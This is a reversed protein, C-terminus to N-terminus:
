ERDALFVALQHLREKEISLLRCNHGVGPRIFLKVYVGRSAAADRFNKATIGNTGSYQDLAGIDILMRPVRMRPPDPYSNPSYYLVGKWLEPKTQLLDNASSAGVSIGLLYVNNTDIGVKKLLTDYVCVADNAWESQDSNRRDVIMFYYGCNAITQAYRDWNYAKELKGMVGIVLPTKLTTDVHSPELLYYTLAKGSTNTVINQITPQSTAYQFPQEQNSVISNFSGTTLDYRWIGAPENTLSSIVFLQQQSVAFGKIEGQWPLRVPAHHQDLKIVPTNLSFDSENLYAYGLGHNILRVQTPRYGSSEIREQNTLTNQNSPTQPYLDAFCDGHKDRCHVLFKGAEQSYSFAVLENTAAQWIKAPADMSKSSRWITNDLKWLLTDPSFAQLSEVPKEASIGINQLREASVFSKPGAWLTDSQVLEFIQEGDSCVLTQPSLWIGTTVPKNVQFVAVTKGSNVDCIVIEKHRNRCFAFYNDDPSWGLTRLQEYVVGERWTDTPLVDLVKRNGTAIEQLYIGWSDNTRYQIFVLKTAANNPLPRGAFVLISGLEEVIERMHAPYKAKALRHCVVVLLPTFIALM